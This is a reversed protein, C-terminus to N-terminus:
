RKGTQRAAKLRAIVERLEAKCQMVTELDPATLPTGSPLALYHREAVALTHGLRDAKAKANGPLPSQYTACTSRLDKMCFDDPPTRGARALKEAMAGLARDTMRFVRERGARGHTLARMLEGLMPSYPAMPVDRAVGTKVKHEPLRLVDMGTTISPDYEAPADFMVEKVQLSSLEARRMGSLLGAAVVPAFPAARKDRFPSVDFDLAARLACRIQPVSYCVPVPAPETESKLAGRIADSTLHTLRGALAAAVLMQRVPKLDQNVTSAMRLKGRVLFAFRSERWASLTPRMLKNVQTCSRAECWTAFQELAVGYNDLTRQSTPKGRRSVKRRLGGLYLDIEQRLTALSSAFERGGALTVQLARQQLSRHLAFAAAEAAALSTVGDLKPQRPQHTEPETYRLSYYARGPRPRIVVVGPHKSQGREV